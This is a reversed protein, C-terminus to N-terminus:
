LALRKVGQKLVRADCDILLGARKGTMRPYAPLQAEFAPDQRQMSKAEAIVSDAVLSDLRYGRNDHGTVAHRGFAVVRVSTEVAPAEEGASDLPGPALHRCVEIAAGIVRETVLDVQPTDRRRRRRTETAPTPRM